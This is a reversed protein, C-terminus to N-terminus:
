LSIEEESLDDYEKDNFSYIFTKSDLIEKKSGNMIEGEDCDILYFVLDLNYLLYPRKDEDVLIKSNVDLANLLSCILLCKDMDDGIKYKDIDEFSLWFTIPWKITEITKIYKLVESIAKETSYEEFSKKIEESKSRIFKNEPDILYKLASISKEEKEEIDEKYKDLIISHLLLKKKMKKIEEQLEQKGICSDEKDNVKLFSLDILYILEFM